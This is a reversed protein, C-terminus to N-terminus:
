AGGGLANEVNSIIVNKKDQWMRRDWYAGRTPAGHYNINRNTLKKPEGRSAWPSHSREGVMVKGYYQFRAYPMNYTISDEGIIRTNKLIGQQMPVYADAYRACESTFLRQTRGGPQLGRRALMTGADDMNVEINM